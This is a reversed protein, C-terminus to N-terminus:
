LMGSFDLRSFFDFVHEETIPMDCASLVEHAFHVMGGSFPELLEEELYMQEGFTLHRYLISKSLSVPRLALTDYFANHIVVPTGDENDQESYEPAIFVLRSACTWLVYPDSCHRFIRWPLAGMSSFEDVVNEVCEVGHLEVRSDDIFDDYEEESETDSAM